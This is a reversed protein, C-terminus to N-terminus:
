FRRSIAQGDSTCTVTGHTDPTRSFPCTLPLGPAPVTRAKFDSHDFFTTIAPGVTFDNCHAVVDISGFLSDQQAGATCIVTAPRTTSTTTTTTTTTSRTTSTTTTTTSRTTSSTTTTPSTAAQALASGLSLAPPLGTSLNTGLVLVSAVVLALVLALRRGLEYRNLV